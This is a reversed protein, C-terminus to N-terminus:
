RSRAAPNPTPRASLDRMLNEKEKLVSSLVGNIFKGSSAGGFEKALDVAENIVVPAPVDTHLLEFISLYLVARDLSAIRHVPWDPAHKAIIQRLEEVNKIVGEFRERDFDEITDNKPNGVFNWIYRLSDDVDMARPTGAVIASGHRRHMMDEWLFIGQVLM